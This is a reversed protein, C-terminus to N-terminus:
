LACTESHYQNDPVVLLPLTFYSSSNFISKLLTLDNNSIDISCYRKLIKGADTQPCAKHLWVKPDNSPRTGSSTSMYVGLLQIETQKM